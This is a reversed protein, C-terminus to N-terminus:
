SADRKDKEVAEYPLCKNGPNDTDDFFPPGSLDIIHTGEWKADM